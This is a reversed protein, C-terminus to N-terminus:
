IVMISNTNVLKQIQDNGGTTTRQPYANKYFVQEYKVNQM